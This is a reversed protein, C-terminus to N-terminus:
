ADSRGGMTGLLSSHNGRVRAVSQLESMPADREHHVATPESMKATDGESQRACCAGGEGGRRWWLFALALAIATAAVLPVFIAVFLMASSLGSSTSPPAPPAAETFTYTFTYGATGATNVVGCYCTPAAPAVGNIPNLLPQTWSFNFVTASSSGSGGLAPSSWDFFMASPRIFRYSCYLQVPASALISVSIIGVEGAAIPMRYFAPQSPLVYGVTTQEASVAVASVMASITQVYTVSGDTVPALVVRCGSALSANTAPCLSSPLYIVGTIIASGALSASTFQTVVSYSGPETPDPLGDIATYVVLSSTPTLADFRFQLAITTTTNPFITYFWYVSGIGGSSVAFNYMLMDALLTSFTAQYAAMQFSCSTAGDGVVAVYYMGRRLSNPLLANNSLIVSVQTRNGPLAISNGTYNYSVGAQGPGPQSVSDSVYLQTSAPCNSSYFGLTLAISTTITTLTLPYSFYSVPFAPTLLGLVQGASGSSLTATIGAAEVSVSLLAPSASSAQVLMWVRTSAASFTFNTIAVSSSTSQATTYQYSSATPYVSGGLNAYLVASGLLPQAQLVLYGASGIRDLTVYLQISRSSGLLVSTPTGINVASTASLSAASLVSGSYQLSYRCDQVASCAVGVFYYLTGTATGTYSLLGAAQTVTQQQATDATPLSANSGLMVAQGQTMIAAALMLIPRGASAYSLQWYEVSGAAVVSSIVQDSRVIRLSASTSVTIYYELPATSGFRNQVTMQYICPLGSPLTQNPSCVNVDAPGFVITDTYVVRGQWSTVGPPPGVVLGDGTTTTLSGSGGSLFNCSILVSYPWGTPPLAFTYFNVQGARPLLGYQPEGAILQTPAGNYGTGNTVTYLLTFSTSTPATIFVYYDGQVSGAPTLRPDTWDVTWQLVPNGPTQQVTWLSSNRNASSRGISLQAQDDDGQMTVLLTVNLLSSAVSLQVAYLGGAVVAGPFSQGPLLFVGANSVEVAIRFQSAVPSFILLNIGCLPPSTNPIAGANCVDYIVLPLAQLPQAVTSVWQSGPYIPVAARPYGNAYLATAGYTAAVSIVVLTTRDNSNELTIAVETSDGASTTVFTVDAPSLLIPTNLAAAFTYSSDEYGYVQCYVTTPALQTPPINIQDVAGPNTSSWRNLGGFPLQTTNSCFLDADGTLSYLSLRLSAGARMQLADLRVSFYHGDQVQVFGPYTVGYPLPMISRTNVTFASITFSTTSASWVGISYVGLSQVPLTVLQLASGLSSANAATLTPLQPGDAPRNVLVSVTADSQTVAVSLQTALLSSVAFAYYRYSGGSLASAQAQTNNLPIASTLPLTPDYASAVVTCNVASSADSAVTLYWTASGAASILIAGGDTSTAVYVATTADPQATSNSAYLNPSGFAAAVSLVLSYTSCDSCPTFSLFTSSSAPLSLTIPSNTSLAISNQASSPLPCLAACFFLVLLLLPFLPLGVGTLSRLPTTM